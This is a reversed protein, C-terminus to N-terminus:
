QDVPFDRHANGSKGKWALDPKKEPVNSDAWGTRVLGRGLEVLLQQGQREVGGPELWSRAGGRMVRFSSLSSHMEQHGPFM